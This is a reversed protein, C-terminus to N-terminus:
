RRRRDRRRLHRQQQGPDHVRRRARCESGAGAAHRRCQPNSFPPDTRATVDGNPPLLRVRVSGAFAATVRVTYAQGAVAAFTYYRRECPAIGGSAGAGVALTQEPALPV